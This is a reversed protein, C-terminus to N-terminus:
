AIHENNKKLCFVAYSSRMLSQLESTHEESRAFPVSDLFAQLAEPDAELGAFRDWEAGDPIGMTKKFAAMQEPNMLGSHNDKHGALPTGFGKITYAVFCQPSRFLTTYPFLTATRTYRPPRWIM